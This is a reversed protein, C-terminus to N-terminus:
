DEKLTSWRERFEKTEWERLKTIKPALTELYDSHDKIMTNYKDLLDFYDIILERRRWNM